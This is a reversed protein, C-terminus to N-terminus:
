HQPAHPGREAFGCYFECRLHAALLRPSDDPDSILSTGRLSVSAIFHEPYTGAASMVFRDGM